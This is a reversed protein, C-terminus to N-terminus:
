ERKLIFLWLIYQNTQQKKRNCKYQVHLKRESVSDTICRIQHLAQTTYLSLYLTITECFGLQFFFNPQTGFFRNFNESQVLFNNSILSIKIYRIHKVNTWSARSAKRCAFGFYKAFFFLETKYSCFCFFLKKEIFFIYFHWVFFKHIYYSKLFFIHNVRCLM